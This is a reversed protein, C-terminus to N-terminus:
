LEEYCGQTTATRGGDVVINAGSVFSAADSALFLVVPAVDQPTGQRLAGGHALLLVRSAALFAQGPDHSSFVVAYGEAALRRLERLM